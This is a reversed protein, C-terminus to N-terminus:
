RTEGEANGSRADWTAGLDIWEVLMRKEDDSLPMPNEPPIPEVPRRPADGDWPRSTNRGLVHWVLPSTRARGPDVYKGRYSAGEPPEALAMLSQYARNFYATADPDSVLTLGGDLRPPVEDQGHCSVCKEQIIPMVDRRFSVTRRRDPPLDLSVSPRAAADSLVNEPTLEGDEHCGICGRPEHNKAWIWGCSRLALGDTDLLQLEIPTNAPVEVNFSGDGEVDVEGLIRRQALPPLGDATSGPRRAPPTRDAPRHAGAGGTKLPVGELVRLRKVTGPPMWRRDELDSVYVNLCYLKGNPDTETVVSSRGDPESRPRIIRAQFDHYRPDDLLLEFKGSSPDLRYVAHTGRGDGPRRSVLLNGDPLPSPGHFLGDRKGTIQRYSHLPRRTQVASLQGAGDWPVEDAEVFVVLGGATECPMHKVRRGRHGAFLAFDTGDINVGFLEVRGRTGRDLNRRQWGAFVLRGDSMITPDVDSSLNFTLRRLASGDLMCSYLDTAPVPGYENMTGARSGVFTLQYWPKPSDLTYLTSQYGPSRCDGINETIRRVSSGDLSAEYINWNDSADKKGAFLIREGDFSVEPDCAGYFDRSIIRPSRDPFVILLRAGDGFPARLTGGSDATRREVDTGAPLQTLVLPHKLLPRSVLPRQPRAGLAGSATVAPFALALALRVAFRFRNGASYPIQGRYM